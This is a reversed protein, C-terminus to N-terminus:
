TEKGREPVYGSQDGRRMGEYSGEIGMNGKTEDIYSNEDRVGQGVDSKRELFILFAICLDPSYKIGSIMGEDESSLLWNEAPRAIKRLVRM